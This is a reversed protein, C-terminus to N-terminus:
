KRDGGEDACQASCTSYPSFYGRRARPVHIHSCQDASRPQVRQWRVAASTAVFATLLV